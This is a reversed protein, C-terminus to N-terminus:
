HVLLHWLTLPSALASLLWGLISGAIMTTISLVLNNTHQRQEMTHIHQHLHRDVLSLLHEDKALWEKIQQLRVIFLDIDELTPKPSSPENAQRGTRTGGFPVVDKQAQEQLQKILLDLTEVTPSVSLSHTQLCMNEKGKATSKEVM